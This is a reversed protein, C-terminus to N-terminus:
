SIIMIKEAWRTSGDMKRGKKFLWIMWPRLELLFFEDKLEAPVLFDWVKRAWQCERTAHLVSEEGQSCRSCEVSDTLRRRWRENNTMIKGHAMIWIFVKIRQQIKMRWIM